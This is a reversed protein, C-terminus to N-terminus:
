RAAQEEILELAAANLLLVDFDRLRSGGREKPEAILLAAQLIGLKRKKAVAGLVLKWPAVKDEYREGFLRKADERRKRMTVGLRLAEETWIDSDARPM